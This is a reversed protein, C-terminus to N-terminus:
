IRELLYCLAIVRAWSYHVHHQQVLYNVISRSQTKDGDWRDLVNMWESWCLGTGTRVEDDTPAEDDNTWVMMM